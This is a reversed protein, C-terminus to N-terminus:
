VRLEMKLWQPGQDSMESLRHNPTTSMKQFLEINKTIRGRRWVSSTSFIELCAVPVRDASWYRREAIWRIIKGFEMKRPRSFRSVPREPWKPWKWSRILFAASQVKPETQGKSPFKKFVSWKVWFGGYFWYKVNNRFDSHQTCLDRFSSELFTNPSLRGHGFYKQTSQFNLPFNERKQKFFDWKEMKQVIWIETSHNKGFSSM